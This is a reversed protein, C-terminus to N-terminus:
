CYILALADPVGQDASGRQSFYQFHSYIVTMDMFHKGRNSKGRLVM